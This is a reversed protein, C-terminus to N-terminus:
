LLCINCYFEIYFLQTLRLFFKLLLILIKMTLSCLTKLWIKNDLGIGILSQLLEIMNIRFQKTKMIYITRHYNQLIQRYVAFFSIELM